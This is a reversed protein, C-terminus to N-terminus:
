SRLDLAARDDLDGSTSAAISPAATPPARAARGRARAPAPRRAASAQEVLQRVPIVRMFRVAIRSGASITSLCRSSESATSGCRRPRARRPCRCRRPTEPGAARSRPGRAASCASRIWRRLLSLNTSCATAVSPKGLTCVTCVRARSGVPRRLTEVHTTDRARPGSASKTRTAPCQRTPPPRSSAMFPRTGSSSSSASGLPQFSAATWRSLTGPRSASRCRTFEAAAM